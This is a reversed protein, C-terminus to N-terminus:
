VEKAASAGSGSRSLLIVGGVVVGAGILLPLGFGSFLGKAAKNVIKGAGEAVAGAGGAIAQAGAKLRDPLAHVSENLAQLFLQTDSPLEDAASIHFATNQLARWFVNNNPYVADPNGARALFNVHGVAQHWRDEVGKHGFVRKVSKLHKTWYDALQIVDSNTTRPIIRKGGGIGPPPDLKDSGRLESLHKHQANFMDEFTRVGEFRRFPGDGKPGVNRLDIPAVLQDILASWLTLSPFLACTADLEICVDALARWFSENRVYERVPCMLADHVLGDLADLWAELTQAGVRGFPAERVIPDILSAISVADAGTTRPYAPTEDDGFAVFGRGQMAADRLIAFATQWDNPISTSM